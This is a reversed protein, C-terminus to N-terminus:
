RWQFKDLEKWSPVRLQFWTRRPGRHRCWNSWRCSMLLTSPTFSSFGIGTACRNRSSRPPYALAPVESSQTPVSHLVMSTSLDTKVDVREFASQVYDADGVAEAMLDCVSIRALAADISTALGVAYMDTMARGALDLVKGAIAQDPDFVRVQLGALAFVVAWGSGVLGAGVIGVKEIEGSSTMEDCREVNAEDFIGSPSTEPLPSSLTERVAM